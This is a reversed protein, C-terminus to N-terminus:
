SCIIEFMDLKNLSQEIKWIPWTIQAIIGRETRKDIFFIVVCISCQYFLTEISVSNFVPVSCHIRRICHISLARCHASFWIFHFQIGNLSFEAMSILVKGDSLSRHVSIYMRLSSPGNEFHFFSFFEFHIREDLAVSNSHIVLYYDLQMDQRKNTWYYQLYSCICISDTCASFAWCVMFNNSSYEVPSRNFIYFISISSM